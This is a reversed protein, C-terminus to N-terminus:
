NVAQNEDKEKMPFNDELTSMNGDRIRRKDKVRMLEVALALLGDIGAAEGCVSVWRCWTLTTYGVGSCTVIPPRWNGGPISASSIIPTPFLPIAARSGLVFCTM